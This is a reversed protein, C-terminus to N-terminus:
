MKVLRSVFMTDAKQHYGEIIHQKECTFGLQSCIYAVVGENEEYFVSCTSYILPKGPKLLDAINTIIKKQRSVYSNIEEAKFFTLHEPSRSWTGSGSCPVDAIIGDFKISQLKSPSATELDAVVVSYNKIGNVTFRNSLNKLISERNDSVTLKVTPEMSHLLLSKGGSAACCDYWLEDEQPKYIDGSLQSSRDQVEYWEKKFGLNELSSGGPIGLRNGEDVFSIGKDDFITKIETLKSDIVRIWTLPKMLMSLAYNEKDISASLKEEFPFLDEIKFAPYVETVLKIRESINLKINLVKLPSFQSVLFNKVDNSEASTLFVAIGLREKENLNLLANGLRYWAYVLDACNKRDRSGMERHNQFFNRLFMALPIEGGYQHILSLAREIQRIEKM